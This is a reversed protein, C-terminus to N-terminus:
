RLKVVQVSVNIPADHHSGHSLHVRLNPAFPVVTLRRAFDSPFRSPPRTGIISLPNESNNSEVRRESELMIMSARDNMPEAAVVTFENLRRLPSSEFGLRLM